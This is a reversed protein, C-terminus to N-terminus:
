GDQDITHSIYTYPGVDFATHQTVRRGINAVVIGQRRANYVVRGLFEGVDRQHQDRLLEWEGSALGRLIEYAGIEKTTATREGVDQDPM